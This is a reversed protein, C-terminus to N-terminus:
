LQICRIDKLPEEGKLIRIGYSVDAPDQIELLLTTWGEYFDLKGMGKKTIQLGFLLIFLIPKKPLHILLDNVHDSPLKM